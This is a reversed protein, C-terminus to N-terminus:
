RIGKMNAWFCALGHLTIVAHTVWKKRIACRSVVQKATIVPDITCMYRLIWVDDPINETLFPTKLTECHAIPLAYIRMNTFLFFVSLYGLNPTYEISWLMLAPRSRSIGPVFLHRDRSRM